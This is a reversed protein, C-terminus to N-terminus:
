IFTQEKMIVTLIIYKVVDENNIVMDIAKCYEEVCLWDRINMGDSYVALSKKNLCNIIMLPILKEPFQYPGYNNSYRTINMTFRFTDLYVKVMLDAGDKSSSYQSHSDIPTTEMFYGIADLLGYVEDTSVQICKNGHKFGEKTEWCNFGARSTVLYTKM